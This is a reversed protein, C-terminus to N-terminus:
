ISSPFFGNMSNISSIGLLWRPHLVVKYIIPYVALRLQHLIEAMLLLHEVRPPKMAVWSTGKGSVESLGSGVFIM